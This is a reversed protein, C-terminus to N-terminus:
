SSMEAPEARESRVTSIRDRWGAAALKQRVFSRRQVTELIGVTM